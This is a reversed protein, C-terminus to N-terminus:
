KLNKDFVSALETKTAAANKTYVPKGNKYLVLYPVGQINLFQTLEKSADTNIKVISIKGSYEKKLEEIMPMMQKCPACWPAYYDVFVIEKEAVIKKHQEITCVDQQTVKSTNQNTTLTFGNRNWDIVGKQLNFIMTYGKSQLFQAVSSSRAGSYCYTYLPKNKPLALLTNSVNPDQLDILVANEIHGRDYEGKTRTDLIIGDGKEIKQKFEAATLQNISTQSFVNLSTVLLFVTIFNRM